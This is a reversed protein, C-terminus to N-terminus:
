TCAYCHYLECVAGSLAHGVFPDTGLDAVLAPQNEPPIPLLKSAAGACLQLAAQGLTKTM